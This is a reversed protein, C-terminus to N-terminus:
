ALFKNPYFRLGEVSEDRCIKGANESILFREHALLVSINKLRACEEISMSESEIVLKEIEEAVQDDNHNELQLIMAGSPYQRLKMPGNLLKCANLVDEPSVLELGRARNIRCYVETITMMGGQETMQDLLSQCIENGLSRLYETNNTFNEKTVPDDIGLSMLLSKFKQTEDETADSQRDRIKQSIAKSVNVMDKAMVILKNLDQFAVSINEDTQKQKEQISKEIGLIGTRQKIKHVKPSNPNSSDIDFVRAMLTENLAQIFNATIGHPASLKIFTYNTYDMPGPLKEIGTIDNLRIILRKKKGFFMSSGIEEDLSKILKLRLQIVNSGRSFEGEKAWVLRHTTLTLEGDEFITKEHGNYIKVGDHKTVITEGEILAASVSEFRNM